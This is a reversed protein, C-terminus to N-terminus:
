LLEADTERSPSPDSRVSAPDPAYDFDVQRVGRDETGLPLYNVTVLSYCTM